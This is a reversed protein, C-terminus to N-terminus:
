QFRTLQVEELLPTGTTIHELLHKSFYASLSVGKTGLGNFVFLSPHSEYRGLLPRRDRSSPRFGAARAIVKAGPEILSEWKATLKRLGDDTVTPDTEDWSFTAGVKFQGDGMPIIFGNRNLIGDVHDLEQCEMTAIEGKNMSVPLDAFFPNSAVRYGECFIIGAVEQNRYKAMSGSVDVASHKFEEEILINERVLWNRYANLLRETNVWRSQRIRGVGFFPRVGAIPATKVDDLFSAYAPNAQRAQYDNVEKPTQLVKYVPLEFLFEDELLQEMGKYMADVEPLLDDIMWSKVLKRGTIPNVIGAAVRSSSHAKVPADCVVHPIGAEHMRFSLASGAIGQGVIIYTNKDMSEICIHKFIGGFLSHEFRM